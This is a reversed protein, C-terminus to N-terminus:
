ARRRAAGAAARRARPAPKQTAKRTTAGAHKVPAREGRKAGARKVAARKAPATRRAAARPAAAGARTTKAKKASAARRTKKAASRRATTRPVELDLAKQLPKQYGSEMVARFRLAMKDGLENLHQDGLERDAAKLVDSEERRIHRLVIESLVARKADFADQSDKEALLRALEVDALGHEELAELIEEPLAERVAPYFIEEEIVTHAVLNAALEQRIRSEEGQGATHLRELLAEVDRHQKQLLETAKM